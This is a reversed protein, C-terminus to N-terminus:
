IKNDEDTEDAFLSTSFLDTFSWGGDKEKKEEKEKKEKEKREKKEREKREKELEKERKKREKELRSSHGSEIEEEQFIGGTQGDNLQDGQINEVTETCGNYKRPMFDMVLGASAAAGPYFFESKAQVNTKITAGIRASYGSMMKILTCLNFMNACGGVVVIGNKLKDAFGSVQIEYFMADLIERVRATIIESLYKTSIEIKGASHPDNIKLTKEGLSGLRDPMCGGFGMKINEALRDDIGCVSRIDDTISDGGFPVAGYHRLAGGYFISISTAGAGMDLLAVGGDMQTPTLVAEGVKDPVFVTRVSSVGAQAFANDIQDRMKSNGMYVKYKGKLEKSVMGVIDEASVGLETETEYCQAVMGFVEDNESLGKAETWAMDCLNELDESTIGCGSNIQTECSFDVERIDYKQLNVEAQIIKMGLARETNAVADRIAESLRTPNFVKGHSIGKSPYENYCIVEPRGDSGIRSVSIGLKRTGLDVTVIKNEEM